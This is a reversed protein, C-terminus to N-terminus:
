ERLRLWRPCPMTSTTSSTAPSSVITGISGPLFFSQYLFPRGSLDLACTVCAEDMPLTAHGYRRIGAKAGLADAFAKGLVIGLDETTHHGDIHTDGEAGLRLDSRWAILDPGNLMDPKIEVTTISPLLQDALKNKGVGQEGLLLLHHGLSWDLLLKKSMQECAADFNM